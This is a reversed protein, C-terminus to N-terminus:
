VSPMLPSRSFDDQKKEKKEGRREIKKKELSLMIVISFNCTKGAQKELSSTLFSFM